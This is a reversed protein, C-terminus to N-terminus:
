GKPWLIMRTRRFLAITRGTSEVTIDADWVRTNRGPHGARAECLIAGDRVTGLFNSKFEIAAAHAAGAREM